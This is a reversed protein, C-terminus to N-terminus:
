AFQARLDSRDVVALSQPLDLSPVNQLKLQANGRNTLTLEYKDYISLVHLEYQSVPSDLRGRDLFGGGTGPTDLVSELGCAPVSWWNTVSCRVDLTVGHNVGPPVRVGLDSPRFVLTCFRKRWEEFDLKSHMRMPSNRCYMSFLQASSARLAKGSDGNVTIEVNNIELHHESSMTATYSAETPRVYIFLLDPIQQLRLNEYNVGTQPTPVTQDSIAVPASVIRVSEKYQSVPISIEPPLTSGPPPIYWKLHLRPASSWWNLSASMDLSTQVILKWADSYFTMSVEMKDVYPISRKKDKAEWLLFPSIPLREYVTLQYSQAFRGFGEAAQADAPGTERWNTMLRYVRAALGSNVLRDDGIPVGSRAYISSSPTDVKAFGLSVQLRYATDWDSVRQGTSTDTHGSYVLGSDDATDLTHQGCDLEGGSMTAIGCLETPHAYFRAFEAMYRHPTQRLSQGNIVVECNSLGNHIAFGQRLALVGDIDPTAPYDGATRPDDASSDLGEYLSRVDDNAIASGSSDYNFGLTYEVYVENDLLAGAFPSDINFLVQTPTASDAVYEQYHTNLPQKQVVPAFQKIFLPDDM